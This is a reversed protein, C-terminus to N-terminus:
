STIKVRYIYIYTYIHSDKYFGDKNACCSFDLNFGLMLAVNEYQGPVGLM